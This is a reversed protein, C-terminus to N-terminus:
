NYLFSVQDPKRISLPQVPLLHEVERQQDGAGILLDKHSGTRCLKCSNQKISGSCIEMEM